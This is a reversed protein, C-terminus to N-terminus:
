APRSPGSLAAALLPRADLVTKVDARVIAAHEPPLRGLQVAFDAKLVDRHQPLAARLEAIAAYRAHEREVLGAIGAFADDGLLPRLILMSRVLGARSSPSAADFTKLSGLLAVDTGTLDQFVSGILALPGAFLRADERAQALQESSADRIPRAMDDLDFGGADRLRTVVGGLDLDAPPWSAADAASAAQGGEVGMAQGILALAGPAPDPRSQDDEEWSAAGGRGLVLFTWLMDLWDARGSLRSRMLSVLASAPGSEKMDVLIRDAAEYPDDIGESADRGERSVKDLSACLAARLADPAAWHRQWWVAVVLNHLGHVNEHLRAVAALQGVARPPYLARSGRTGTTHEVRPRPVLGARRWRKLQHPTPRELGRAAVADLLETERLEPHMLHDPM